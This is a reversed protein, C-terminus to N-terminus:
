PLIIKAVEAFRQKMINYTNSPHAQLKSIIEAFTYSSGCMDELQQDLFLWLQLDGKMSHEIIDRQESSVTEINEPKIDYDTIDSITDLRRLNLQCEPSIFRSLNVLWLLQPLYHRNLFNYKTAFWCVTKYDLESNNRLILQIYTNVGSVHREHPNRIYVDISGLSHIEQNRLTTFNHKGAQKRISSSANKQILFVNQNCPPMVVVRCDDPYLESDFQTLM